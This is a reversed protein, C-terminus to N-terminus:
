FIVEDQQFTKVLVPNAAKVKTRNQGDAAIVEIEDVFRLMQLDDDLANLIFQSAFFFHYESVRFPKLGPRCGNKM